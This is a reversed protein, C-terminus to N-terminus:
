PVNSNANNLQERCTTESNPPQYVREDHMVSSAGKFGTRFRADLELFYSHKARYFQPHGRPATSPCSAVRYAWPPIHAVLLIFCYRGQHRNHPLAAGLAPVYLELRPLNPSMARPMREARALLSFAYYCANLRVLGSIFKFAVRSLLFAVLCMVVLIFFLKTAKERLGMVYLVPSIRHTVLSLDGRSM